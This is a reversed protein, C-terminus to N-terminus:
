RQAIEQAFVAAAQHAVEAVNLSMALKCENLEELAFWKAELADDGGVPAGSQWKCLVAILVFHQRLEGKDDRGFVDVATFVRHAEARVGTEELLERIAASKITEGIKIKGGPFGWSGADPPNARRVLLIKEDHFVAAITAAIPRPVPQASSSPYSSGSM